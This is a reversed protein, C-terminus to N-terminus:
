VSRKKKSSERGKTEMLGYVASKGWGEGVRGWCKRSYMKGFTAMRAGGRKICEGQVVEDGQKIEIFLRYGLSYWISVDLRFKESARSIWVSDLSPYLLSCLLM